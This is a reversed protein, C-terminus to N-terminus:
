RPVLPELDGEEENVHLTSLEGGGSVCGECENLEPRKEVWFTDVVLRFVFWIAQLFVLDAILIGFFLTGFSKLRPKQCIYTTIFVAPSVGLDWQGAQAIDFSQEELDAPLWVRFHQTTTNVTTLDSSLHALLAPDALMNPGSNNNRGLDALMAFYTTKSLINVSNWISPMLEGKLLSTVNNAGLCFDSSYGISTTNLKNFGCWINFFDVDMIEEATAIAATSSRRPNVVGNYYKYNRRLDPDDDVGYYEEMLNAWYIRMISEGWWLSAKTTKNRAQFGGLLPDAPPPIPNYTGVLEFYTLGQPDGIACRATATIAAGVPLLAMQGGTRGTTDFDMTMSGTINCRDLAQNNYILSGHYNKQNNEETWISYLTYSFATNNTYLKTQLPITTPECTTRTSVIFAPLSGIWSRESITANPNASSITFLEYGTVAVNLLSVLVTALLGGIVVVLTFWRFPYPRTINYSFFSQYSSM